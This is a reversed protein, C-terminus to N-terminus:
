TRSRFVYKVKHIAPAIRNAYWNFTISSVKVSYLPNTVTRSTM